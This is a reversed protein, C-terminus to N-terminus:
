IVLLMRRPKSTPHQYRNRNTKGCKEFCKGIVKWVISLHIFIYTQQEPAVSGYIGSKVIYFKFNQYASSDWKCLLWLRSACKNIKPSIQNANSSTKIKLALRLFAFPPIYTKFCVFQANKSKIEGKCKYGMNRGDYVALHCLLNEWRLMSSVWIYKVEAVTPQPKIHRWATVTWLQGREHSLMWATASRMVAVAVVEDSAYVPEPHSSM